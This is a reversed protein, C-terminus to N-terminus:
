WKHEEKDKLKNYIKVSNNYRGEYIKGEKLAQKIGCNQEKIHTCGIFECNKSYENLERFYTYLKNSEIEYIDFSSFGPTDAIYTNEEM